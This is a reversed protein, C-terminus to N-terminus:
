PVIEESGVTPATGDIDASYKRRQSLAKIENASLARDYISVEDIIGTFLEVPSSDRAGMVLSSTGAHITNAWVSSAGAQTGNIFIKKESGDSTVAIHYWTNTSLAGRGISDVTALTGSQSTLFYVTATEISVAYSRQNAGEDWKSIIYQTPNVNGGTKIWVGITLYITDLSNDDAVTVYDGTGDFSLSDGTSFGATTSTYWRGGDAGAWAAGTITGTNSNGSSDSISGGSGEDMHWQAKLGTFGSNKTFTNDFSSAAAEGPNGYYLYIVTNGAPLSPVKVWISASTGAVWSEIWYPLSTGNYNFRLDNGNADASAFSFNGTTLNVNVQYDTQTTAGGNSITVPRRYSWESWATGTVSTDDTLISLGEGCGSLLRISILSVAILIFLMLRRRYLYRMGYRIRGSM